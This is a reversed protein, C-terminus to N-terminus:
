IADNAIELTRIQKLNVILRVVGVSLLATFGIQRPKALRSSWIGKQPLVFILIDMFLNFVGTVM